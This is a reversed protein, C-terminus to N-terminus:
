PADAAPPFAISDEEEGPIARICSLKLTKAEAWQGTTITFTERPPGPMLVATKNGDTVALGPATGNNNKFVVAGKPMYAQKVNNETMKLNKGRYFKEFIELLHDYSAQHLEMERGFYEAVTEKTLDDYTPGLGGTLVILDSREFALRISDKLRQPNDGVVSQYYVNIGAAALGKAIHVANTNVVDGLLLETGVCLIEAKM